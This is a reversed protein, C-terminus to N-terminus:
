RAPTPTAGATSGERAIRDLAPRMEPNAMFARWIAGTRGNEIMVVIPAQDLALYTRAFWNESINFADRFGYPGWLRDGLDRYFHKLAAMSEAPTYAYASLAATPSITGNDMHRIPQQASYGFPNDSATLGWSNEGYGVYKGPNAVCYARNILSIARNNDFYNTYRDRVAHPDFGMFSYHTFFLPGGPGVGVPLTIGYYTKGNVYRDGDKTGGWDSRYKAAFDSQSAWGSYYMGAPVGHTPSAIALLYTVMTENFGILRHGIHWTSDPSWHWYLYGEKPDRGRFWDWEVAEWLATIRRVIDRERENTGSFYGRAALLGQVLFSTEVLDAGNDYKGFLPLVRGSVDIFHPWAGHFRDAKELFKTIRLIREAAAERTVFGREAGVLIAMIGFGSAGGAILGSDGPINELALGSGPDAGEWYYRFSAEQVMTLLEDDSMPRTSASVTESFPSEWYGLDVAKVKYSLKQSPEGVWDEYRQFPPGTNSRCQLRDRRGVFLPMATRGRFAARPKQGAYLAYCIRPDSLLLRDPSTRAVGAGCETLCM